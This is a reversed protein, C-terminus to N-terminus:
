EIFILQTTKRRRYINRFAVDNAKLPRLQISDNIVNLVFM